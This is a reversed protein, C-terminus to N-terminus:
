DPRLMGLVVSPISNVLVAFKRKIILSTHHYVLAQQFSFLSYPLLALGRNRPTARLAFTPSFGVSDRLQLAVTTFIMILRCALDGRRTKHQTGGLSLALITFPEGQGGKSAYLFPTKNKWVRFLKGVKGYLHPNKIKSKRACAHKNVDNVKEM